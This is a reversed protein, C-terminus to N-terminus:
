SSESPARNIMTARRHAELGELEALRGIDRRVEDPIDTVELWTRSRLFTFVSLGAKFRATRGTPLSHNPGIGYDAFVEASGSGIFLSGAHRISDAIRSADRCHLELHESALDNCLEIAEEFTQCSISAGNKLAQKAIEATSLDSLQVRLESEVADLLTESNSVVYPRASPDHEAQALLDAAVVAANATEDALVVLESPGALMDIGVDSSVLQKAATVWRNGPGVILDCADMSETGYAMAAIAHAGGVALLRDAGAIGAAALTIPPPNPSAVIVSQCGAARATAVTMLVSSPLPYRGGPAYCGVREIPVISHGARGGSVDTSLPQICNRQAIAFETIRQCTRELVSRDTKDIKDVARILADREFLIPQDDKREGFQVALQRLAADGSRRVQRILESAQLLVEDELYAQSEITFEGANVRRLGSNSM